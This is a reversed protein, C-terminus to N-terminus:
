YHHVTVIDRVLKFLKRSSKPPLQPNVVLQQREKAVERLLQRFQQCNSDPYQELFEYLAQQGQQIFRDCWNETKHLLYTQRKDTEEFRALAQVIEDHDASRM